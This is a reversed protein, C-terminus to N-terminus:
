GEDFVESLLEVNPILEGPYIYSTTGLRFPFKGKWAALPELKTRVQDMSLDTM